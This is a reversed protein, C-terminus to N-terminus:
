NAKRLKLKPHILEHIVQKAGASQGDRYDRIRINARRLVKAIASNSCESGRQELKRRILKYSFGNSALLEVLITCSDTM